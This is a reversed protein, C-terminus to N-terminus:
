DREAERYADLEHKSGIWLALVCMAISLVLWITEWSSGAGMYYAGDVGTWSEFASGM